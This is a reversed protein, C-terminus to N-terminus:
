LPVGRVTRAVAVPNSFTGPESFGEVRAETREFTQIGLPYLKIAM